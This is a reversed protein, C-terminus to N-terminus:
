INLIMTIPMVANPYVVANKLPLIALEEPMKEEEHDAPPEKKKPDTM